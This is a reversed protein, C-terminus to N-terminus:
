DTTPSSGCWRPLQALMILWVQDVRYLYQPEGKRPNKVEDRCGPNKEAYRRLAVDVANAKEPVRLANAFDRSAMLSADPKQPPDPSPSKEGEGQQTWTTASESPASALSPAVAPPLTLWEDREIRTLNNRWDRLARLVPQAPPSERANLWDVLSGVEVGHRTMLEQFQPRYRDNLRQRLVNGCDSIAEILADPMKAAIAPQVSLKALLGDIRAMSGDLAANLMAWAVRLATPGPANSNDRFAPPDFTPAGADRLHEGLTVLLQGCGSPNANWGSWLARRSEVSPKEEAEWREALEQVAALLEDYRTLPAFPDPLLVRAPSSPDNSM